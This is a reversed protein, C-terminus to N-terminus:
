HRSLMCIVCSLALTLSWLHGLQSSELKPGLFGKPGGCRALLVSNQGHLSFATLIWDRVWQLLRFQSYEDCDESEKWAEVVQTRLTVKFICLLVLFMESVLCLQGKCWIIRNWYHQLLSAHTDCVDRRKAFIGPMSFLERKGPSDRKTARLWTVHTSCWPPVVIQSAPSGAKEMGPCVEGLLKCVWQGRLLQQFTM